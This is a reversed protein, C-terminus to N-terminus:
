IGVVKEMNAPIAAAVVANFQSYEPLNIGQTGM